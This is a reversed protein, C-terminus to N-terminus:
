VWIGSHHRTWCKQTSFASKWTPNFMSKVLTSAVHPMYRNNTSGSLVRCYHFRICGCPPVQILLSVSDINLLKKLLILSNVHCVTLKQTVNRFWWGHAFWQLVISVSLRAGWCSCSAQSIEQSGLHHLVFAQATTVNHSSVWLNTKSGTLNTAQLLINEPIHFYFKLM